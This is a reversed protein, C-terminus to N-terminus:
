PRMRVSANEGTTFLRNLSNIFVMRESRAKVAKHLRTV